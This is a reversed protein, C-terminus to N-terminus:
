LPKNYDRYFQTTYDGSYLLYGPARKENSLNLNLGRVQWLYVGSSKWPKQTPLFWGQKFDPFDFRFWGGGHSQTWFTFMKWPTNAIHIQKDLTSTNFFWLNTYRKCSNMCYNRTIICSIVKMNDDYRDLYGATKVIIIFLEWFTQVCTKM